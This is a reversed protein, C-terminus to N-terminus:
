AAPQDLVAADDFTNRGAPQLLKKINRAPM